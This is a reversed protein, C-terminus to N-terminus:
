SERLFLKVNQLWVPRRFLANLLLALNLLLAPEFFFRARLLVFFGLMAILFSLM